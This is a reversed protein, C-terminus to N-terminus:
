RSSTASARMDDNVRRVGSVNQAIEMARHAVTAPVSGSLNVIGHDHTDVHITYNKTTKDTLLESKVKSTIWSDKVGSKAGHYMDKAGSEM